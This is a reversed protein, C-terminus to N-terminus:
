MEKVKRLLRKLKERTEESGDGSTRADQINIEELKEKDSEKEEFMESLKMLMEYEQQIRKEELIKGIRVMLHKVLFFISMLIIAIMLVKIISFSDSSSDSEILQRSNYDDVYIVSIPQNSNITWVKIVIYANKSLRPMQINYTYNDIQNKKSVSESSFSSLDFIDGGVNIQINVNMSPMFGINKITIVNYCDPFLLDNNKISYENLALMMDKPYNLTVKNSQMIIKPGTFRDFINNGFLLISISVILSLIPIIFALNLKAKKWM